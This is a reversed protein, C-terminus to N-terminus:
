YAARLKHIESMKLTGCGLFPTRGEDARVLLLLLIFGDTLSSKEPYLHMAGTMEQLVADNVSLLRPPESCVM